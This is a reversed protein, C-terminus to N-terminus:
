IKSEKATKLGDGLQRGFQGFVYGEVSRPEIGVAFFDFGNRHNESRGFGDRFCPCFPIKGFQPRDNRKPQVLSAAGIVTVTVRQRRIICHIVNGDLPLTAAADDIPLFPIKGFESFDAADFEVDCAVAIVTIPEALRCIKRPVVQRHPEFLRGENAVVGPTGPYSFGPM